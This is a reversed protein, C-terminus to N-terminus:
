INRVTTGCFSIKDTMFVGKEVEAEYEGEFSYRWTERGKVFRAGGRKRFFRLPSVWM